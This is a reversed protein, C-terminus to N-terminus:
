RVLRASDRAQSLLAWLVVGTMVWFGLDRCWTALGIAVSFIRDRYVKAGGM